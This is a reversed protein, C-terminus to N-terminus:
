HSTLASQTLSFCREQVVCFAQVWVDPGPLSRQLLVVSQLSCCRAQTPRVHWPTGPGPVLVQVTVASQVFCSCRAQEPVCHATTCPAPEFSHVNLLSQLPLLLLLDEEMWGKQMWNGSCHREDDDTELTEQGAFEIQEAIRSVAVLIQLRTTSSHGAPVRRSQGAAQPAAPHVPSHQRHRGRTLLEVLEELLVDDVREREVLLLLVEDREVLEELLVEEMREKQTSNGCAHELEELELLAEDKLVDVGRLEVDDLPTLDEREDEDVDLERLEVEELPTPDEREDEDVDLERLEVDDLPTPDVGCDTEARGLRSPLESEDLPTPDERMVRLM